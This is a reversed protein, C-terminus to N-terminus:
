KLILRGPDQFLLQAETSVDGVDAHGNYNWSYITNDRKVLINFDFEEGRNIGLRRYPITFLSKWRNKMKRVEVRWELDEAKQTGVADYRAESPNIGFVYPIDQKNGIVVFASNDDRWLEGDEQAIVSRPNAEVDLMIYLNDYDYKVTSLMKKASLIGTGKEMFGALVGSGDIIEKKDEFKLEKDAIDDLAELLYDDASILSTNEDTFPSFPKCGKLLPHFDPDVSVYNVVLYKLNNRAINRYIKPRAGMERSRELPSFHLELKSLQPLGIASAVTGYSDFPSDKDELYLSSGGDKMYRRYYDAIGENKRLMDLDGTKLIHENLAMIYRMHMPACTLGKKSFKDEFLSYDRRDLKFFTSNDPKTFEEDIHKTLDVAAKYYKLDGTKEYAWFFLKNRLAIAIEIINVVSPDEKWAVLDDKTSKKLLMDTYNLAVAKYEPDGFVDFGRCFTEFITQEMNYTGSYNQQALPRAWDRFWSEHVSDPSLKYLHLLIASWYGVSWKNGPDLNWTNEGRTLNENLNHVPFKGREIKNNKILIELKSKALYEGFLSLTKDFEPDDTDMGRIKEQLGETIKLEVADDTRSIDEALETFRSQEFKEAARNSKGYAKDLSADLLLLKEINEEYEKIDIQQEQVSKLEKNLKRYEGNAEGLTKYGAFSVLSILAAAAIAMSTKTLDKHLHWTHHKIYDWTKIRASVPELKVVEGKLNVPKGKENRQQYKKKYYRHLDEFLERGSSYRDKKKHATAKLIIAELDGDIKVLESPWKPNIKPNVVKRAIQQPDKGKYLKKGKTICEYLVAGLSYIDAQKLFDEGNLVEPAIYDVTGIVTGETTFSKESIRKAIGFDTLKYYGDAGKGINGPKIDRHYIGEYHANDLALAIQMGMKLTEKETIKEPNIQPTSLLEMVYFLFLKPEKTDESILSHSQYSEKIDVIFLCGCSDHNYIKEELTEKRENKPTRKWKEIIGRIDQLHAVSQSKLKTLAEIEGTFRNFRSDPCVELGEPTIKYNLLNKRELLKMAYQEPGKKALYVEGMGGSGLIRVLRYEEVIKDSHDYYNPVMNPAPEPEDKKDETLREELEKSIAHDHIGLLKKFM